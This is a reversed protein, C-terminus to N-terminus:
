AHTRRLNLWVLIITPLILMVVYIVPWITLHVESWNISPLSITSLVYLGGALVAGALVFLVVRYVWTYFFGMGTVVAGLMAGDAAVAKRLSLRDSKMTFTRIMESLGIVAFITLLAMVLLTTWFEDGSVERLGLLVDIFVILVAFLGICAFM